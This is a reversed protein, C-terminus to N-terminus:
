LTGGTGDVVAVAAPLVRVLGSWAGALGWCGAGRVHLMGFKLTWDAKDSATLSPSANVELLWPKLGSDVLVDYGYLEFAHRDNIMAPQVALLARIILSQIDAFLQNSAEAGAPAPPLPSPRTLAQRQLSPPLLKPSAHMDLLQNSAHM